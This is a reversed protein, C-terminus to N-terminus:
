YSFYEVNEMQKNNIMINVPSTVKLSGNSLNKCMWKWEMAEELSVSVPLPMGQLAAVEKGLLELEDASKVTRISQGLKLDGYGEM